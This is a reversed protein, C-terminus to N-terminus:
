WLSEFLPQPAKRRESCSGDPLGLLECVEEAEDWFKQCGERSRVTTLEEQMTAILHVANTFDNSPKQLADSVCKAKLLIIRMVLLFRVFKRDIQLMFGTAEVRRGSNTDEDITSKLVEIIISLLSWVVDFQKAQCAWSTDSIRVIEMITVGREQQIAVWKAHVTSTCFFSHLNKFLAVMDAMCKVSTVVDVIVLNLRHVFCHVYYATEAGAKERFKAQVGNLHGSVVSAGDYGQGICDSM